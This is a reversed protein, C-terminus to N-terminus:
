VNVTAAKPWKFLLPSGQQELASSLDPNDFEGPYDKFTNAFDATFVLEQAQWRLRLYWAHLGLRSHESGGYRTDGILPAGLAKMAVRLQHTKGSLPKLIAYRKQPAYSFSYFWTQAPNKLSTSLRWSGNRAKKMDGIISGQTKRPKKDLLGLYIKEVERNQFKLSLARNSESNKAILLLGSTATDLRHVPFLQDDKRQQRLQAIVGPGSESHVGVGPHKNIVLFDANEYIVQM